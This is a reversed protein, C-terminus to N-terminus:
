LWSPHLNREEGAHVIQVLVAEQKDVSNWFRLAYVTENNGREGERIGMQDVLHDGILAQIYDALQTQTQEGTPTPQRYLPPANHAVVFATGRPGLINRLENRLSGPDYYAISDAGLQRFPVRIADDVQTIVEDLREQSSGSVM